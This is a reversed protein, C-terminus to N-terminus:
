DYPTYLLLLRKETVLIKLRLTHSTFFTQSTIKSMCHISSFRNEIVLIKLRVTQPPFFIQERYGTQSKLQHEQRPPVAIVRQRSM